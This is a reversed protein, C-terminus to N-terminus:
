MMSCTALVRDRARVSQARPTDDPSTWATDINHL